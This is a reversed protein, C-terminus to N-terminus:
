SQGYGSSGILEGIREKVGSFEGKEIWEKRFISGGFAVASAGSSFFSRINESNVGGCALLEIDRFPGKLDKFYSHGFMGAPFVKVMTAGARWARYIEGPTLAGPFVPIANKACYEVVGDVLAPMVIFTAGADLASRMVELDLVTGAGVMLRGGSKKVVARISDQAKPSNMAVELTKLGSSIVAEVLPEIADPAIGRMIGMIPLKKFKTVDM